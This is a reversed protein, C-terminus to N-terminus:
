SEGPRANKRSIMTSGRGAFQNGEITWTGSIDLIRGDSLTAEGVGTGDSKLAVVGSYGEGPGGLTLTLGNALLAQLEQGTMDHANPMGAARDDQPGACAALLCATAAAILPKANIM